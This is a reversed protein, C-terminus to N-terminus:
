EKINKNSDLNIFDCHYPIEPKKNLDYIYNYPYNPLDPKIELTSTNWNYENPKIELTNYQNPKIELTNTNWGHYNFTNYQNPKIEFEGPNIDLITTKEDIYKLIQSEMKNIKIEFNIFLKLNDNIKQELYEIRKKLNEIEM